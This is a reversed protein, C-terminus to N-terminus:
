LNDVAEHFLIRPFDLQTGLYVDSIIILLVMYKM